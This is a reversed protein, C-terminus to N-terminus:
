LFIQKIKGVVYSSYYWKKKTANIKGNPKVVTKSLQDLEKETIKSSEKVGLM